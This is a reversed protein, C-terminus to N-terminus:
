QLKELAKRYAKAIKDEHMHHRDAIVHRGAIFMDKVCPNGGSFIWSDLIADGTRGMLAPHDADLVCIDARLGPALAGVPQAMAKAGGSLSADYLRRGTSRGPGDALVNRARDRLRQSYELQRLDEAPSM